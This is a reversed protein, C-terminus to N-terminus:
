FLVLNSMQMISLFSLKLCKEVWLKVGKGDYDVIIAVHQYQRSFYQSYM